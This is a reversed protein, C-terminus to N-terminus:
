MMVRETRRLPRGRDVPFPIGSQAFRHLIHRIGSQCFRQREWRQSAPPLPARTRAGWVLFLPRSSGGSTVSGRQGLPRGPWLALLSGLELRGGDDLGAGGPRVMAEDRARGGRMGHKWHGDPLVPPPPPAGAPTGLACRARAGRGTGSGKWLPVCQGLPRGPGLAPPRPAFGGAAPGLPFLPDGGTGDAPGAPPPIRNQTRGLGLLSAVCASPLAFGKRNQTRGLM